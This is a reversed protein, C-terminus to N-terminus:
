IGCGPPPLLRGAGAMTDAAYRILEKPQHALDFGAIALESPVLHDGEAVLLPARTEATHTFWEWSDPTPLASPALPDKDVVPVQSVVAKVRRDIAAVV